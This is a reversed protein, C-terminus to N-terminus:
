ERMAFHVSLLPRICVFFFQRTSEKGTTRTPFISILVGGAQSREKTSEKHKGDIYYNLAYGASVAVNRGKWFIDLGCISWAEIFLDEKATEKFCHLHINLRRTFLSPFCRSHKEFINSDCTTEKVVTCLPFSSSKMMIKYNTTWNDRFILSSSHQNPWKLILNWCSNCWYSVVLEWDANNM